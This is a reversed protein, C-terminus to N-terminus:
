AAPWAYIDAAYQDIYASEKSSTVTAELRSAKLIPMKFHAGGNYTGDASGHIEERFYGSPTGGAATLVFQVTLTEGPPLDTGSVFLNIDYHGLGLVAFNQPDNAADGLHWPKGKALRRHNHPATVREYEPVEAEKETPASQPVVATGGLAQRTYAFFLEWDFDAGPDHRNIGSDGHACFGPVRARAQAGTIRMIPVTIGKTAMYAVFDAAAVALNRYFLERRGAPIRLWGDAQAAASLGVAWPNTESDQWAEYEYPVMELVSDSDVLTHYSGYDTRTRIFEACNEASSDPGDLDVACEATHIICTGSLSAGRRPYGWQQTNPQVNDLLYFSM